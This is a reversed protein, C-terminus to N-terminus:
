ETIVDSALFFNQNMKALIYGGQKSTQTRSQQLFDGCECNLRSGLLAWRGRLPKKARRHASWLRPFYYLKKVYDENINLEIIFCHLRKFFPIFLAQWSCGLHFRTNAKVKIHTPEQAANQLSHLRAAM